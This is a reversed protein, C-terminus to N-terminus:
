LHAESPENNTVPQAASSRQKKNSRKFANATALATRKTWILLGSLVMMSLLLGFFAWILKIWLGGFDGTHLPRMSETVFELTSRDSILRSAAIEGNYPNITATQFMLPYWGRGGVDLHSYANGPLSVFSAELGSIKQTAIEIARDLDIRPPPSGDASLPVAERSMAPIIKETSISIQNDFLLAQILFWTGTISIVAIFWISWIGSLRHFDGWFIRAGHRIRLTPRFFGKWFRKYVVLGTVLSALLPLGLFSVLYWGWSYGNTFPVLWWGHLARTFARFNFEPAVGQIVGSYPNVYIVVSRGDPYSVEVDLAFHSEDPRSISQVVTQPEAKNIAEIVQQYSLLPADDSPQSARMPPNTLWVIEQSIVALTGTVCVILVFFWIPLALWSHVLFWIKSRSKKSM